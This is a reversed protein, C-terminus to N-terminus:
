LKVEVWPTTGDDDTGYVRTAGISIRCLKDDLAFEEDRAEDVKAKQRELAAIAKEAAEIHRVDALEHLSDRLEDIKAQINKAHTWRRQQRALYQHLKKVSERSEGAGLAAVQVSLGAVAALIDSTHDTEGSTLSKLSGDSDLGLRAETSSLLRGFPRVEFVEAAQDFSQELRFQVKDSSGTSYLSPKFTPTKVIYRIGKPPKHLDDGSLVHVSMPISCASAFLTVALTLLRQM